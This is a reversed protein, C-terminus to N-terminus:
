ASQMAFWAKLFEKKTKGLVSAVYKAMEAANTANKGLFAAEIDEIAGAKKPKAKAVAALYSGNNFDRLLKAPTVDSEDMAKAIADVADSADTDDAITPPGNEAHEASFICLVEINKAFVVNGSATTDLSWGSAFMESKVYGRETKRSGDSQAAALTAHGAKIAEDLSMETRRMIKSVNLGM